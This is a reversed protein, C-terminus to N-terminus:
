LLSCEREGTHLRDDQRRCSKLARLIVMETCSHTLTSPRSPSSLTKHVLGLLLLHLYLLVYTDFHSEGREAKQSCTIFTRGPNAMRETKTTRRMRRRWKRRRCSAPGGATQSLLLIQACISISPLFFSSSPTWRISYM